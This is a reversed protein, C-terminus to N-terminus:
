KKNKKEKNLKNNIKEEPIVARIENIREDTLIKREKQVFDEFPRISTVELLKILKRYNLNNKSKISGLAEYLSQDTTFVETESSYCMVLTDLEESKDTLFLYIDRASMYVSGKIIFTKKEIM